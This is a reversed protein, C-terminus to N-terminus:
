FEEKLKKLATRADVDDESSSDTDDDDDNANEHNRVNNKTLDKKKGKRGYDYTDITVFHEPSLTGGYQEKNSCDADENEDWLDYELKFFSGDVMHKQVDLNSLKRM